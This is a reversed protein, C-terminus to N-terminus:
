HKDPNKESKDKVESIREKATDISNIFRDM